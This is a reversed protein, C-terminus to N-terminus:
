PSLPNQQGGRAARLVDVATTVRPMVWNTFHEGFSGGELLSTASTTTSAEARQPEVQRVSWGGQQLTTQLSEGLELTRRPNAGLYVFAQLSQAYPLNLASRLSDGIYFGWAVYWRRDRECCYSWDAIREGVASEDFDEGLLCFLPSASSWPDAQALIDKIKERTRQLLQHAKLIVQHRLSLELIALSAGDLDPSGMMRAELFLLFEKVLQKRYDQEDSCHRKLWNSLWDYARWWRCTRRLRIGYESEDKDDAEFGPPPETWRTLLILAGDPRKSKLWVGYDKLKQTQPDGIKVEILALPVDDERDALLAIDPRKGIESIWHQTKWRITPAGTLLTFFEDTANGGLLGNIIFDRIDVTDFRSVLDSLAETLFNELQSRDDSSPYKYLRAYISSPITM